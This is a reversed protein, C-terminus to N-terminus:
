RNGPTWSYSGGANPHADAEQGKWRIVCPIGLDSRLDCRQLSGEKWFLDVEFGGRARLGRVEGEQWAAPLAPLLHLVPRDPTGLHSQLLMEAIGATAGFNGDIQFPPHACFLNPYIGGGAGYTVGDTRILHLFLDIVEAAHDGDLFRAWLAIRWAMAWGTSEDGRRVLSKRSAEYLEPLTEPTFGDGPYVNYLHSAHRHHVDDEAFNETWELLHGEPAVSPTALEARRSRIEALTASDGDGLIGAAALTHDWVEGVIALDIASAEACGAIEGTAPDIFVNEPSTAPSTVWAGGRGRVLYDLYFLAAGKLAPYTRELLLRDRSFERLKWRALVPFCNFISKNSGTGLVSGSM